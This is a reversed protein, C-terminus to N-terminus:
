DKEQPGRCVGLNPNLPLNLTHLPNLTPLPNLNPDALTVTDRQYNEGKEM